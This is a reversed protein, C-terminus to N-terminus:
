LCGAAAAAAQSIVGRSTIPNERFFKNKKKIKFKEGFNIENRPFYNEGYTRVRFLRTWPLRARARHDTPFFRDAM